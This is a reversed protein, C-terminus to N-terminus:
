YEIKLTMGPLSVGESRTIAHKDEASFGITEGDNLTVDEELVYFVLNSLFERVEAPEADADLVEMEDKGFLNMGYTYCCVGQERRYLGFWIWNFVPLGGEKMIEALEAYFQPEFVTGSTYVGTANRQRCCGSIIKVFLEGREILGTNRGLVTVLLHAKHTKAAEVAEPWMYNNEANQEAENNPVPAPMLGVAALMDGASFVLTDKSQEEDTEVADINWETKLDQILQTKNWDADSLLVFGAFAGANEEDEAQEKWYACIKEVMAAAKEVATDESYEEMESFVHGCHELKDKEYGGCVGLLWKGLANKKYRFLYYTMENLELDGTCEIKVPAKGLEQPHSLWETMSEQAAKMQESNM